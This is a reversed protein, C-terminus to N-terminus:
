SSYAFPLPYCHLSLCGGVCYVIICPLLDLPDKENRIAPRLAKPTYLSAQVEPDGNGNWGKMEFVVYMYGGIAAHGDSARRMGAVTGPTLRINYHKELIMRFRHSQEMENEWPESMVKRLEIVLAHDEPTPEHNQDRINAVFEAFIPHLLPLPLETPKPPRHLAFKSQDLKRFHQPQALESPCPDRATSDEVVLRRKKINDVADPPIDNM